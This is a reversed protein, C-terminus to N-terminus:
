QRSPRGLMDEKTEKRKTQYRLGFIQAEIYQRATSPKRMWDSAMGRSAFGVLKIYTKNIDRPELRVRILIVRNVIM